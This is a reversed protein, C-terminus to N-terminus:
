LGGTDGNSVKHEIRNVHRGKGMFVLQALSTKRSKRGANRFATVHSCQKLRQEM